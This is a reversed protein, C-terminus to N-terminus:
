RSNGKQFSATHARNGRASSNSTQRLSNRLHWFYPRAESKLFVFFLIGYFLLVVWWAIAPTNWLPFTSLFALIRIVTTGIYSLIIGFLQAVVPLWSFFLIITAIVTCLPTALAMLINAIPSSVPFSGSFYMTYPLMLLPMFVSLLLIERIDVAKFSPLYSVLGKMKPVLFIMFGTALFSLHFGPDFFITLPSSLFFFLYAITLARLPRVKRGLVMGLLPICGMIGARVSAIGAGSIMILLMIVAVTCLSRVRIPVWRLVMWLFGALVTINYGSLVLVHLVGTNRFIDSVSDPIGGQYGVTMGAIVGDVPFSIYKTFIDAIKFRLITAIRPISVKGLQVVEINSKGAIGVIGKSLLFTQYDFLRGTETTFPKPEDIAAHVLIRDGPLLPERKSATVQINRKTDDDRVILISKQLERNVSLVTAPFTRIGFVPKQISMDVRQMSYAGGICSIGLVTFFFVATKTRYKIFGVGACFCSIVAVIAIPIHINKQALAGLTSALAIFQLM